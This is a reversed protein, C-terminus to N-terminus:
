TVKFTKLSMVFGICVPPQLMEQKCLSGIINISRLDRQHSTHEKM